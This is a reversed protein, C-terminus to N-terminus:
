KDNVIKRARIIDDLLQAARLARAARLHKCRAGDGLAIREAPRMRKLKPEIRFTFEYCACCGVGSYFELDVLYLRKNKESRVLCRFVGDYPLVELPKIKPEPM